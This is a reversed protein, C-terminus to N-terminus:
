KSWQIATDAISESSAEQSPSDQVQIIETEAYLTTCVSPRPTPRRTTSSSHRDPSCASASAEEGRRGRWGALREPSVGLRRAIICAQNILTTRWVGNALWRRASTTVPMPAIAIRGIRRLQRVLEYDELIPWDPFGGVQRLTEAKLFTAQDGYPHQLVTSRYRVLREIWRFSRGPAAIHLQFAGASVQPRALIECVNRQFGVPLFTDAHLFLLISGRAAAAGANMQHARGAASSFVRAGMVRAIQPTGDHSGGDVVIVEVDPGTSASGIAQAITQAENLAPIIVSIVPRRHREWVALDRPEDVDAHMSLRYVTLGAAAAQRQTQEFVNASGWDIGEFIQRCPRQLGMLYYGGDRAPGIVCDHTRLADFAASLIDADLEPCDTGVVVARESGRAFAERFAHYMRTGLNGRRQPLYTHQNGFQAAMRSADGGAFRVETSVDRASRLHDAAQLAQVTMLRQLDAAGEPGLAPILRTKTLGPEPFRTFVIVHETRVRFDSAKPSHLRERVVTSLIKISAGIVGRMTGSIKSRGIRQRYDVPADLVRLGARIARIQMQITWGYTQDDMRLCGLAASRVARFPGLDTYRHGWLTRILLCALANGCRQQLTLAGRQRCGQVRSGIVLDADGRAIPGVLRDMQEPHDSFDGDLFVLIDANSVAAIGALCAAGYGRLPQWVVQAGLRQAIAATQDTSGNDVVIVGDVWAPIAALVKAIAKEENLAPIIVAVSAKEFM